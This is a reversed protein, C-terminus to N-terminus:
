ALVEKLLLLPFPPHNPPHLYSYSNLPLPQSSSLVQVRGREQVQNANRRGSKKGKQRARMCRNERRRKGEKLLLLPFPSLQSSSLVQVVTYMHRLLRHNMSGTAQVKKSRRGRAQVKARTRGTAQAKKSQRGTAKARTRDAIRSENIAMTSM